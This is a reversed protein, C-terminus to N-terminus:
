AIRQHLSIFVEIVDGDDSAATEAFGLCNIKTGPLEDIRKVKGGILKAEGHAQQGCCSCLLPTEEPAAINIPDGVFIPGAAVVRAIGAKRVTVNQNQLSQCDVTVGLIAGANAASPLECEGANAGQVVVMGASVGGDNTIKYAKDLFFLPIYDSM